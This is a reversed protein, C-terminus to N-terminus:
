VAGLPATQDPDESNAIGNADKPRFILLNQRKTQIKPQNCRLKKAHSFKPVKHYLKCQAFVGYQLLLRQQRYQKEQAQTYINVLTCFPIIQVYFVVFMLLKIIRSLHFVRYSYLHM